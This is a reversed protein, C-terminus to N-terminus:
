SERKKVFWAVTIRGGGSSTVTDLDLYYKIRNGNPKALVFFIPEKDDSYELLKRLEGVTM